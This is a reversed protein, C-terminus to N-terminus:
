NDKLFTTKYRGFILYFYKKKLMLLYIKNFYHSNQTLHIVIRTTVATIRFYVVQVQSNLYVNAYQLNNKDDFINLIDERDIGEAIVYNHAFVRRYLIPLYWV